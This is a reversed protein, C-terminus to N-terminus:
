RVCINKIMRGIGVEVRILTLDGTLDWVGM